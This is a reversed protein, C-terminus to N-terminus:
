KQKVGGISGSFDDTIISQGIRNVRNVTEQFNPHTPDKLSESPLSKRPGQSSGQQTM